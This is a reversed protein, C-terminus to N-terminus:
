YQCERTDGSGVYGLCTPKSARVGGEVKATPQINPIGPEYREASLRCVTSHISHPQKTLFAARPEQVTMLVLGVRNLSMKKGAWSPYSCGMM